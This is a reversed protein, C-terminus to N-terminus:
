NLKNIYNMYRILYKRPTCKIPLLAWVITAGDIGFKKVFDKYIVFKPNDDPIAKTFEYSLKVQAAFYGMVITIVLLVALCYVKFKLIFEALKHWM